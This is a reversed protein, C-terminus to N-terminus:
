PTACAAGRRWTAFSGGTAALEAILPSPTWVSGHASELARMEDYIKRIGVTDAYQLPGGRYAPFSYGNVWVVDLDGPRAAIGESLIAAAENILAYICRQRIEADGIARRSIGAEHAIAIILDDVIPDPLPARNGPEYRYYGAGTKQGFRGQECLRDAVHSYRGAPPREANRRKRIRWGIDLGALDAMAFPGMAFGFDRIVRDIQEPSAGEELLFEAQRRYPYLMRNGIFGDCNGSVVSVKKIQKGLALARAITEPSTQAGRVIELLKMINAPSFFHLGIVDAPRRTADAIRDIDLTSTNTALLTGPAAIADLKAFVDRKIDMDEFVAEIVLDVNAAAQLDTSYTILALREDHQAQSLKGKKLTSGYNSAVTSRAREVQAPDVDVLTVTIGVNALAMAIGTGMTGGGIVVATRVAAPAPGTITPPKAAERQAFFLHIRARSQDSGRLAVFRERERKSGEAFPLTMADAVCDIAAHAAQGGREPPAARKRADDIVSADGTAQSESARRKVGVAVTRAFAVADDVLDGSALQDVLGLARAKEGSVPEGTLIMDLAPALGIIRPLRQTGEAGPLLGLTIEPLGLRARSGAVRYDCAMAVELGAGLANGEIAAIVPVPAAEIRAILHRTTLANPDPNAFAAIDAGASFTGAAGCLVIGTVDPGIADFQGVIAGITAAGLANVPAHEFSIVAVSDRQSLRATAM